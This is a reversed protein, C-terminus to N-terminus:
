RLSLDPRRLLARGNKAPAALKPRVGQISVVNLPVVVSRAATVSVAVEVSFAGALENAGNSGLNANANLGSARVAQLKPATKLLPARNPARVGTRGGDPDGLDIARLRYPRSGTPAAKSTAAGRGPSYPYHAHNLSHANATNNVTLNRGGAADERAAADNAARCLDGSRVEGVEALVVCRRADFFRTLTEAFVLADQALFGKEVVDLDTALKAADALRVIHGTDM